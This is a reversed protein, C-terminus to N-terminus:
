VLKDSPHPFRSVLPLVQPVYINKFAHMERHADLHAQDRWREILFFQQRDTQSQYVEFRECGAEKLSLAGCEELLNKVTEVDESNTVNLLVNNYIM